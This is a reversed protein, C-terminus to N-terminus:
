TSSNTNTAVYECWGGPNLNDYTERMLKPFDRVSGVLWKAHIFDFKQSYTWPEEMDDVEFYVNPPVWDAQTPSLDIGIIEASPYKDGMDM